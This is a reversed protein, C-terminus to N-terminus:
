RSLELGVVGGNRYSPSESVQVTRKLAKAHYMGGDARDLLDDPTAGDRPYLAVGLSAGARWPVGRLDFPAQFTALLTEAVHAAAEPTAAGDLIVAFEDGSIRALVDAGRLVGQMRAGVERLLLDGARHGLTDNVLKFRDLDIFLLAFGVGGGEADALRTELARDFSLRNPLGTLPDTYAREAVAEAKTRARTSEQLFAAFAYLATLYASSVAPFSIVLLRTVTDDARPPVAGALYPLSFLVMGVLYGVSVKLGTKPGLVLFAWIFRFSAWLLFGDIFDRIYLDPGLYLIRALLAFDYVVMVAMLGTEVARVSQPKLWLLGACVALSLVVALVSADQPDNFPRFGTLFGILLSSAVALALTLLYFKRRLRDSGQASPM